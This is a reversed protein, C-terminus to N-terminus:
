VVGIEELNVFHSEYREMFHNLKDKKEPYDVYVGCNRGYLIGVFRKGHKPTRRESDEELAIKLKRLNEDRVMLSKPLNGTSNTEVRDLVMMDRLIDVEVGEIEKLVSYIGDVYEDLSPSKELRLGESIRGYLGFPSLGCVELVYSITRSFRGSNYLRDVCDEMKELLEIEKESLWPTSKVQYPPFDEYECPYNERNLGIESGHLVKLFGLQLMDAGLSYGIDFSKGFEEMDEYPLGAILDIHLHHNGFSVLRRINGVLKEINTKRGVSELTKECFSQMGIELQISGKPMKEILSLTSERLIDGALEFHFCVFDPISKGYEELIFRLIEDCHSVKSNFTRDIFKVTKTGSNALAVMEKKVRNLPFYRVKEGTGSLCFACSFPCGRSSEMYSIKKELQAFYAECYPSPPESDPFFPSKVVIEGSDERYSLGMVKSFDGEGFYTELLLPFTEEGEGSLVFDVACCRSLVEKQNFSVEPGGFVMPVQPMKEKLLRGLQETKTINWIYCSFALFDCKEALIGEAIGELSQNITADIVKVDFDMTSFARVGAVLCWPSLSAHIYKSNLTCIVIKKM